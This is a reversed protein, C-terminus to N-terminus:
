KLRNEGRMLKRDHVIGQFFGALMLRIAAEPDIGPRGNDCCYLGTPHAVRRSTACAAFIVPANFRTHLFLIKCV